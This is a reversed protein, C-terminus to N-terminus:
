GLLKEWKGGKTAAAFDEDSMSLLAEVSTSGKTAGGSGLSKSAAVGRQQTQLKAAPDSGKPTYGRAKALRYAIEAPNRGQAANMLAGQAMEQAALQQATMADNGLAEFERTRSALMFSVAEQYDPTAAKFEAEHRQVTDVTAALQQQRAQHQQWSEVQERTARAEQGVQTIQHRLAGAPDSEFDPAPTQPTMAQQLAALREEVRRELAERAAREQKLLDAAEKRRQREEHLAALPVTRTDPERQEETQEPAQQEVEAAPEAQETPATNVDEGVIEQINDM